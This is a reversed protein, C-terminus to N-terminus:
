SSGRAKALQEPRLSGTGYHSVCHDRQEGGCRESISRRRGTDVPGHGGNALNANRAADFWSENSSGVFDDIRIQQAM